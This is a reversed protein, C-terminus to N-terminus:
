TGLGKCFGFQLNPFLNRKKAFNNRHKALLNGYVKSLVSTITIPRYDSPCSNASGSKPVPTINSVRECM